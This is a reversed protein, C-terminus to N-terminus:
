SQQKKRFKKEMSLGVWQCLSDTIRDHNHYDFGSAERAQRITSFWAKIYSTTEEELQYIDMDFYHRFVPDLDMLGFDLEIQCAYLLESRGHIVDQIPQQFRVSNRHDWHQKNIDWIRSSLKIAWRQGTNRRKKTKYFMDQCQKWQDSLLGSMFNDWGIKHQDTLADKVHQSITIPNFRSDIKNAQWRPLALMIVRTIDPDTGIRRLWTDLERMSRHWIRTNRKHPCRLIHTVTEERAMCRPCKANDQMRKRQQLKGLPLQATAWKSIFKRRHFSSEQMTGDVTNWDVCKVTQDTLRGKQIWWQQADHSAAQDRLHRDLDSTVPYDNVTVLSIGYPAAPLRELPTFEQRIAETIYHKARYDM